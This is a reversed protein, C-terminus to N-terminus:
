LVAVACVRANASVADYDVQVTGDSQNYLAPPFPGFTGPNDVTVTFAADNETRAHPCDVQQITVATAQVSAAGLGNVFIVVVRGNDNAFEADNGANPTTLAPLVGARVTNTVTITDRGM